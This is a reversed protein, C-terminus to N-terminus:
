FFQGFYVNSCQAVIQGIQDGQKCGKMFIPFEKKRSFSASKWLAQIKGLLRIFFCEKKEVFCHMVQRRRPVITM